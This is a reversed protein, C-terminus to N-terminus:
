AIFRTYLGWISCTSGDSRARLAVTCRGCRNDSQGSMHLRRVLVATLLLLRPVRAMVARNLELGDETVHAHAPCACLALSASLLLSETSTVSQYVVM